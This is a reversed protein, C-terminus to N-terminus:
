GSSIQAARRNWSAPLMSHARNAETMAVRAAVSWTPDNSRSEETPTMTLSWAKLPVIARVARSSDATIVSCRLM